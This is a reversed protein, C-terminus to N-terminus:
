PLTKAIEPGEEPVHRAQQPQLHYRTLGEKLVEFAEEPTDVMTFGNVDEPSITGADALVELNLVRNWYEKGYVIVLIKKALKHTQALTLIEFLEDLTGFGGPFVVLAKALYAFWYKRMFFYHFEFNLEPTIYQNPYQEFPLRINLGITKGGAERAGRNAAEMIGPGGGSTVVFRHRKGPLTLTWETLMSALRRAEEYYRAMEVAAHARKLAAQLADGDKGGPQQEPPAPKASGPKELITLANQADPLSAFRASGFFVVTDQIKERRFRSLPESYESLIRLLRGDPSNLFEPNLYALPAPMLEPDPKSEEPDPNKNSNTM